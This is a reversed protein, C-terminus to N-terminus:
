DADGEKSPQDWCITSVGSFEICTRNATQTLKMSQTVCAPKANWSWGPLTVMHVIFVLLQVMVVWYPVPNTLLAVLCSRPEDEDYEGDEEDEWYQGQVYQDKGTTNPEAIYQQMTADIQTSPIPIAVIVVDQLTDSSPTREDENQM